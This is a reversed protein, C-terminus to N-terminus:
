KVQLGAQGPLTLM